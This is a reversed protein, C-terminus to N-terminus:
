SWDCTFIYSIVIPWSTIAVSTFDILLGPWLYFCATYLPSRWVLWPGSQEDTHSSDCLCCTRWNMFCKLLLMWSLLTPPPLLFSVPLSRAKLATTSTLSYLWFALSCYSLSLCIHCGLISRGSFCSVSVLFLHSWLLPCLKYILVRSKLMVSLLYWNNKGCFTFYNHHCISIQKIKDEWIAKLFPLTVTYVMFQHLQIQWFTCNRLQLKLFDFVPNESGASIERVSALQAENVM